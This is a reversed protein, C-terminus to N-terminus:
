SSDLNRTSLWRAPGSTHSCSAYGTLAPIVVLSCGPAAASSQCRSGRPTSPCYPQTHYAPDNYASSGVAAGNNSTAGHRGPAHGHRALACATQGSPEPNVTDAGLQRRIAPKLGARGPRSDDVGSEDRLDVRLGDGASGGGSMVAGLQHRVGELSRQPQTAPRFVRGPWAQGVAAVCSRLAGAQREGGKILAPISAEM